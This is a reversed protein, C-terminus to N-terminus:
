NCSESGYNSKLLKLNLILRRIRIDYQGRDVLFRRFNAATSCFIFRRRASSHRVSPNAAHAHDTTLSGAGEAPGPTVIRPGLGAGVNVSCAASSVEHSRLEKQ